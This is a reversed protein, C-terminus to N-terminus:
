IGLSRPKALSSSCRALAAPYLAIMTVASTSTVLLRSRDIRNCPAAKGFRFIPLTGLVGPPLPLAMSMFPSMDHLSTSKQRWSDPSGMMMLLMRDGDCASCPNCCPQEATHSDFWPPRCSSLEGDAMLVNGRTAAATFPRTGIIM